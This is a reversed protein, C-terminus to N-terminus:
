FTTMQTMFFTPKVMSRWFPTEFFNERVMNRLLFSTFYGGRRSSSQHCNSVAHSPILCHSVSHSLTLCFSVAHSLTFWHSVAQSLTLCHSVPHLLRREATSLAWLSHRPITDGSTSSQRGLKSPKVKQNSTLAITESGQRIPEINATSHDQCSIRKDVARNRISLISNTVWEIMSQKFLGIM